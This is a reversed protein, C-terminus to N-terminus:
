KHQLKCVITQCLKHSLEYHAADNENLDQLVENERRKREKKADEGEKVTMTAHEMMHQMRKYMLEATFVSLQRSPDLLWANAISHHACFATQVLDSVEDKPRRAM